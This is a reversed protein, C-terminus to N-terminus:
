KVIPRRWPKKLRRWRASFKRTSRRQRKRKRPSRRQRPPLKKTQKFTEVALKKEEEDTGHVGVIKEKMERAHRTSKKIHEISKDVKEIIKRNHEQGERAGEKAQYEEM